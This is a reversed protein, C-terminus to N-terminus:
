GRMPVAVPEELLFRIYADPICNVGAHPRSSQSGSADAGSIEICNVGAHPRSSM